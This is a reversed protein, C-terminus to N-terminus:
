TFIYFLINFVQILEGNQVDRAEFRNEEYEIDLWAVLNPAFSIQQTFQLNLDKHILTIVIFWTKINLLFIKCFFVNDRQQACIQFNVFVELWIEEILYIQEQLWLLLLLLLHCKCTARERDSM